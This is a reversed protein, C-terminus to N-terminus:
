PVRLNMVANVVARWRDRDQALDIWDMAGDWKKFVFKLIIRDMGPDELYYIEGRTEGGFDQICREQEGYTSCAGGVENKKIQHHTCMM